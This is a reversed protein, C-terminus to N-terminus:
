SIITQYDDPTDMDRFFHDSQVPLTQLHKHNQQIIHKCGELHPHQLIQRRYFSSFIVPNGRKDNLSPQLILKPDIQYKEEFTRILQNYEAPTILPLDSLCIMYGHAKLSAAKVGAQISTTMGQKYNPNLVLFPSEDILLRFLQDSEHGIVILVEAADSARLQDIMHRVLAKGNYPLLLKNQAGMRRSEGAALLIATIM